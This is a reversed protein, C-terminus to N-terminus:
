RRLVSSKRHGDQGQHGKRNVYTYARPPESKVLRLHAMRIADGQSIDPDLSDCSSNRLSLENTSLVSM